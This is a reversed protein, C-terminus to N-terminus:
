RGLRASLESAFALAQRVREEGDTEAFVRLAIDDGTVTGEYGHDGECTPDECMAPLLDVRQVTGWGLTLTLGRGALGGRHNEPDPIQHTLTVGRVARLPVTESTATGMRQGEPGPHDDAHAIVLRHETLVLVTLHNRVALDDFTTEAHVLHSVVADAGVATSVVDRVVAPLYGTAEIDSLLAPPLPSRTSSVM